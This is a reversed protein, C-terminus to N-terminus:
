KKKLLSLIKPLLVKLGDGPKYMKLVQGAPNVLFKTFNWPIQQARNNGWDFLESNTRLFRYVEHTEPGNVVVKDFVKFPLEFTTLLNKKLDM